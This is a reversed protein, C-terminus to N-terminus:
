EDKRVMESFRTGSVPEGTSGLRIKKLMEEIKPLIVTEIRNALKLREGSYDAAFGNIEELLSKCEKECRAFWTEQSLGLFCVQRAIAEKFMERLKVESQICVNDFYYPFQMSGSQLAAEVMKLNEALEELKQAFAMAGNLSDMMADLCKQSEPDVNPYISVNWKTLKAFKNKWLSKWYEDQIGVDVFAIIGNVDRLRKYDKLYQSYPIMKWKVNSVREAFRRVKDYRTGKTYEDHQVSGCSVVGVVKGEHTLVPGGSNGQLVGADVELRSGGLALIRGENVTMVGEGLTDGFAVIKDNVSVESDGALELGEYKRPLLFRVLDRGDAIEMDDLELISGDALRVKAKRADTLCHECTYLYKRGCITVIFGTGMGQTTQVYAINKMCTEYLQKNTRECGITLSLIILGFVSTILTRSFMRTM